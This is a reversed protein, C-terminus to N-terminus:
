LVNRKRISIRRRSSNCNRIRPRAMAHRNQHPLLLNTCNRSPSSPRTSKSCYCQRRNRVPWNDAAAEIFKGTEVGDFMCLPEYINQILTASATDYCWHPDITEPTGPTVQYIHNANPVAAANVSSLPLFISLTMALMLAITMYKRNM